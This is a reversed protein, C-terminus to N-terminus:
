VDDSLFFPRPSKKSHYSMIASKGKKITNIEHKLESQVKEMEVYILNINDIIVKLRQNWYAGEEISKRSKQLEEVLESVVVKLKENFTNMANQFNEINEIFYQKDLTIANFVESQFNEFDSFIKEINGIKDNNM